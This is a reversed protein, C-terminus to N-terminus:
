ADTGIIDGDRLMLLEEDGVEIMTGGYAAYVITAGVEIDNVDDGTGVAVVVARQTKQRAQDPLVVGGASVEAAQIPRALVRDGRPTLTM